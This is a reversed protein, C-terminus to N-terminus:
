SHGLQLHLYHRRRCQISILERQIISTSDSTVRNKEAPKKRQLKTIEWYVQYSKSKVKILQQNSSGTKYKIIPVSCFLESKLVTKPQLKIKGDLQIIFTQIMTMTNYLKKLGLLTLEDRAELLVAGDSQSQTRIQATEPWDM